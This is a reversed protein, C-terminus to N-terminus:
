RYNRLTDLTKLSGTMINREYEGNRGNFAWCSQQANLTVYLQLFPVQLNKPIDKVEVPQWNGINKRQSLFWKIFRKEWRPDIADLNQTGSNLETTIQRYLERKRRQIDPNSDGCNCFEDEGTWRSIGHFDSWSTPFPKLRGPKADTVTHNFSLKGSAVMEPLYKTYLYKAFSLSPRKRHHGITEGDNAGEKTWMKGNSAGVTQTPLNLAFEQAEHDEFGYKRSVDLDYPIVAVTKGSKTTLLYLPADEDAEIQYKGLILVTIGQNALVDLTEDNIALEAPWFGYPKEHFDEQYSKIGIDVVLEQIRRPLSPLIYQTYTTAFKPKESLLKLVKEYYVPNKAKMWDLLSPSMQFGFQESKMTGDELLPGYCEATIKSNHCNTPYEPVDFQSEDWRHMVLGQGTIDYSILLDNNPLQLAGFRNPQYMWHWHSFNCEELHKEIKNLETEVAPGRDNVIWQPLEVLHTRQYEATAM